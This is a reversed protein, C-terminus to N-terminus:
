KYYTKLIARAYGFIWRYVRFPPNSVLRKLAIGAPKDAAKYSDSKVITFESGTPLSRLVRRVSTFRVGDYM